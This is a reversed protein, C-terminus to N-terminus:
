LGVLVSAGLALASVLTAGILTAMLMVNKASRLNVTQGVGSTKPVWGRPDDPNAYFASWVIHARMQADSPVPGTGTQMGCWRVFGVTAAVALLTTGTLLLPLVVGVLRAM